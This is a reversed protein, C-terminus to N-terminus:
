TKFVNCLISTFCFSSLSNAREEFRFNVFLQSIFKFCNFPVYYVDFLSMVNKIAFMILNAQNQM